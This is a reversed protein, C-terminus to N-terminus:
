EHAKYYLLGRALNACPVTKNKNPRFAKRGLPNRREIKDKIVTYRRMELHTSVFIAFINADYTCIYKRFAV